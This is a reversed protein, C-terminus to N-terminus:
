CVKEILTEISFCRWILVFIKTGVPKAGYMKGRFSSSRKIIVFSGSCTKLLSTGGIHSLLNDKIVDLFLKQSHAPQEIVIVCAITM